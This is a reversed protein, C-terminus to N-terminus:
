PDVAIGFMAGGANGSVTGVFTCSPYWYESAYNNVPDATFWHHDHENIVM